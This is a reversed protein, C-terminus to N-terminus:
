VDPLERAPQLFDVSTGFERLVAAAHDTGDADLHAPWGDPRPRPALTAAERLVAGWAAAAHPATAHARWWAMGAAGLSARLTRDRALRRVSLMLSHEADRVDLSVAVPAAPGFGRPLWTQPNLAPWEATPGTEFMVVPRGAAMAALPLPDSTASSPWSLALVVDAERLLQGASDALLLTAAAGGEQARSVAQRLTETANSALAGFTVPRSDAPAPTGSPANAPPGAIAQPAYRLRAEPYMDQLVTATGQNPVVVARAATFPIRLMPWTGRPASRKADAVPAPRRESFRFEDAYHAFRRAHVLAAARSDHLTVARLLLVGPYRLLYPWVFAHAATNDLEFVCLDFPNRFHRWVFDHASTGTFIDIRYDNRLEAILGSTDDLPDAPDPAGPRFWALTALRGRQM